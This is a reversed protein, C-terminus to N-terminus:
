KTENYTAGRPSRIQWCGVSCLQPGYYRDDRLNVRILLNAPHHNLKSFAQFRGPVLHFLGVHFSCSNLTPQRVFLYFLIIWIGFTPNPHGPWSLQKGYPISNSRITKNLSADSVQRYSTFKLHEGCSALTHLHSLSFSGNRIPWSGFRCHTQTYKFEMRPDIVFKMMVACKCCLLTDNQTKCGLAHLVSDNQQM